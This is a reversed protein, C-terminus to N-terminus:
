TTEKTAALAVRYRDVFDAPMTKNCSEYNAYTNRAVGILKAAAAQSHGAAVRLGRLEIAVDSHMTRGDNFPDQDVRRHKTM